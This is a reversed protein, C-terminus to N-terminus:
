FIAINNQFNFVLWFVTTVFALVGAWVLVINWVSLPTPYATGGPVPIIDYFTWPARASERVFGMTIIIWMALIGSLIAAVRPSRGLNGWDPENKFNGLIFAASGVFFSSIVSVTFLSIYKYDMSGIPNAM